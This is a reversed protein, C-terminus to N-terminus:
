AGWRQAALSRGAHSRAAEDDEVAISSLLKAQLAVALRIAGLLPSEVPQGTSGQVVLPSGALQDRLRALDDALLCAQTLATVERPDEFTIRETISRWLARGAKGLGSPSKQV